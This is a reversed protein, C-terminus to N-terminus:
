GKLHPQSIPMTRTPSICRALGGADVHEHGVGSPGLLRTFTQPDAHVEMLYCRASVTSYYVGLWGVEM